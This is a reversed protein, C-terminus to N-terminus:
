FFGNNSLVIFRDGDEGKEKDCCEYFDNLRWYVIVIKLDERVM